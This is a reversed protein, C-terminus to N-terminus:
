SVKNVDSTSSNGSSKDENKSEVLECCNDNINTNLNLNNNNDNLNNQKNINSNNNSNKVSYSNM